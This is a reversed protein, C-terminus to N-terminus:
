SSTQVQTKNKVVCKVIMGEVPCCVMCEFAVDFEVKNEYLVGSSYTLIKTSDHKIFGEITCKGEIQRKLKHELEDLNVYYKPIQIRYGGKEINYM